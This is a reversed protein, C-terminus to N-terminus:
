IRPHHNTIEFSGWFMAVSNLPLAMPILHLSELPALCYLYQLLLLLM